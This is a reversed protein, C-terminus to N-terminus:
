EGQETEDGEQETGQSPNQSPNGTTEDEDGLNADGATYYDEDEWAAECQDYLFYIRKPDLSEWQVGFFMTAVYTLIFPKYEKVMVNEEDGMQDYGVLVNEKPSIWAFRDKLFPMVCFEIMKNSGEVFQQDYQTNYVIGGHELMYEENYQDLFSQSCYLYCKTARLEPSMRRLAHKVVRYPTQGKKSSDWYTINRKKVDASISTDSHYQNFITEFGDFLDKTTTGSKNFSADGMAMLLNNSLGKSILALVTKATPTEMQGDGKTAGLGLITSIATNPEFDAVVSGFHTELTRFDINLDYNTTNSPNYPAFQANGSATGVHEKGRIGPRPTMYQLVSKLGIIPLM